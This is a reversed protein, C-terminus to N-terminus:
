QVAQENAIPCDCILASGRCAPCREVCCGDVHLQGIEVACDSCQPLYPFGPAHETGYPTRPYRTGGLIEHTQGQAADIRAQWGPALILSM